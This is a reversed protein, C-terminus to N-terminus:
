PVFIGLKMLIGVISLGVLINLSLWLSSGVEVKAANWQSEHIILRAQMANRKALLRSELQNKFALFSAKPALRPYLDELAVASPRSPQELKM